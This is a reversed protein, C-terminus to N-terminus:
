REGKSGRIRRGRNVVRSSSSKAGMPNPVPRRSKSAWASHCRLVIGTTQIHYRKKILSTLHISPCPSPPSGFLTKGAAGPDAERSVAATAAAAAAASPALPRPECPAPPGLPPPLEQTRSRSSRSPRLDLKASPPAPPPPLPASWTADDDLAAVPDSAAIFPATLLSLLLPPTPEVAPEAPAPLTLPTSQPAPERSDVSDRRLQSNPAPIAHSIDIYASWEHRRHCSLSEKEKARLFVLFRLRKARARSCAASTM